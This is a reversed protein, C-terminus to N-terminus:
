PAASRKSRSEIDTDLASTDELEVSYKLDESAVKSNEDLSRRKRGWGGWGGGGHGGWGGRGWPEALAIGFIIAFM